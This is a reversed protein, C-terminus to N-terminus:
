SWDRFLQDEQLFHYQQLIHGTRFLCSSCLKHFFSNSGQIFISNFSLHYFAILAFDLFNAAAKEAIFAL